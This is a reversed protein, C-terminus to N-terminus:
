QAVCEVERKHKLFAIVSYLVMTLLSIAISEIYNFLLGTICITSVQYINRFAIKMFLFDAWSNHLSKMSQQPHIYIMNVSITLSSLFEHKM